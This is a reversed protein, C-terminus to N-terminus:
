KDRYGDLLLKCKYLEIYDFRLAELQQAINANPPLMNISLNTGCQPPEPCSSVPVYVTKACGSVCLIFIISLLIYVINKM